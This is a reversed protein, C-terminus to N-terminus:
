RHAYLEGWCNISSGSEYGPYECLNDSTALCQWKVVANDASECRTPINAELNIPKFLLLGATIIAIAAIVISYLKTKM